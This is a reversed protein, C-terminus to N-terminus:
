KNGQHLGPQTYAIVIRVCTYTYRKIQWSFIQMDWYNYRVFINTYLTHYWVFCVTYLLCFYQITHGNWYKSVLFRTSGTILTFTSQLFLTIFRYSIKLTTLLISKSLYDKVIIYTININPFKYYILVKNSFHTFVLLLSVHLFLIYIFKEQQEKSLYFYNM